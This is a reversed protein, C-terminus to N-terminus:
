VAQMEALTVIGDNNGDANAIPDGRLAHPGALADSFLADGSFGVDAAATGGKPIVVGDGCATYKTDNTFGLQLSKTVADKTMTAEIYVSLGNAVLADVDSQVVPPNPVSDTTAPGIELSVAQWARAIRNDASLLSLPAGDQTVLNLVNDSNEATITGESGAVTVDTMSVLFRTYKVSWGDTTTTPTALAAASATLSLSGFPPQSPNEDCAALITLTTLGALIARKMLIGRSTLSSPAATKPIIQQQAFETSPVIGYKWDLVNYLGINYDIGMKEIEGSLVIDWVVGTDTKLQPPDTPNENRDPRPGEIM